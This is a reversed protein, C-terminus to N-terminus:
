NYHMNWLKNAYSPTRRTDLNRIKRIARLRRLPGVCIWLDRQFVSELGRALVRLSNSIVEFQEYGACFEQSLTLTQKKIPYVSIHSTRLPSQPTVVYDWSGAYGTMHVYGPM